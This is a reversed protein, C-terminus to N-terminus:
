KLAGAAQGFMGSIISPQTISEGTLMTGLSGEHMVGVRDCCMLLEELETSFFVISMGEDALEKFLECIEIRARLDVGRLPDNLILVRPRASLWRAVLVKQQNGGSLGSIPLTLNPTKVRLRTVQAQTERRVTKSRIWGAISRRGLTPLAQNDLVSLPAFVGERKRDGPVYAIGQRYATRMGGISAYAGAKEIEITGAHPRTQGALSRLLEDQGHGQLGAIGLVEGARIDVDFVRGGHTLRLERAQIVTTASQTSARPKVGTAPRHSDRDASMMEVLLDTSSDSGQLTDITRGSRMVTVRDAMDSIEDMRHSILLVSAGRERESSLTAFLRDRDEIDLASTAEDLVLLEWPRALARAVTVLQRRSLTLVTMPTDLSVEELGLSDLANRARAAADARSATRRILGDTGLLVNDLVSLDDVVLTEQFVAVIGARQAQRPTAFQQVRGDWTLEGADPNLVGTILKVFTSKGSGNEGVLAHVEGPTVTFSADELAITKGFTRRLGRAELTAM